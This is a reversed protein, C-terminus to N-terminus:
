PQSSPVAKSVNAVTLRGARADLLERGAIQKRFPKTAGPLFLEAVYPSLKKSRRCPKNDMVYEVVGAQNTVPTEYLTEVNASHTLLAQFLMAQYGLRGAPAHVINTANIFHRRLEGTNFAGDANCGGIIINHIRSAAAPGIQRALDQVSYHPASQTNPL